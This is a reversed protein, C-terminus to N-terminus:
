RSCCFKPTDFQKNRSVDGWGAWEASIGAEAYVPKGTVLCRAGWNQRLRGSVRWIGGLELSRSRGKMELEVWNEKDASQCINNFCLYNCVTFLRTGTCAVLKRIHISLHIPLPMSFVCIKGTAWFFGGMECYKFWSQLEISGTHSRLVFLHFVTKYCWLHTLIYENRTQM